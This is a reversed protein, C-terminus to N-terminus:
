RDRDRLPIDAPRASRRAAAAACVAVGLIARRLEGSRIELFAVLLDRATRDSRLAALEATEPRGAPAGPRPLTAVIEDPLQQFFYEVPLDLLCAVRYLAGPAIRNIGREYKQLQQFSVGLVAAVDRQVLGRARRALSLRRGVHLNIPDLSTRAMIPRATEGESTLVSKSGGVCDSPASNGKSLVLHM